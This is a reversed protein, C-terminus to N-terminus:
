NVTILSIEPGSGEFDPHNKIGIKSPFLSKPYHYGIDVDDLIGDTRTTGLFNIGADLCPSDVAQGASIQSLYYHGGPGTVFIPDTNINGEGTYGGQVDSYTILPSGYIQGPSNNWIISNIVTQTNSIGGATGSYRLENGAITCNIIASGGYVGGAADTYFAGSSNEVILCNIFTATGDCYIGAGGKREIGTRNKTIICDSILGDKCYIGAGDIDCTNNSILCNTVTVIGSSYIGGGSGFTTHNNYIICNSITGDDCGIGGASSYQSSNSMLTNHFISPMGGTCGIGADGYLTSNDIIMNESITPSGNSSYIGGGFYAHNEIIINNSIKPSANDCYIGGGYIPPTSDYEIYGNQITFGMLISDEGENNHFYFGRHTDELTGECDIICSEAGNESKVTIAKGGFDIDRNGSGTFTGDLIMVSDNDSATNIGEQIVDYPHTSSGDELPDSISPDGPGPDNPADDDVYWTTYAYLTPSTITIGLAFIMIALFLILRDM